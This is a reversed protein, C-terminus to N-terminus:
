SCFFNTHNVNNVEVLLVVKQWVVENFPEGKFRGRPNVQARGINIKNSWFDGYSPSELEISALIMKTWTHGYVRVYLAFKKM